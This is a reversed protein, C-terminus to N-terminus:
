SRCRRRRSVTCATPSHTLVASSSSAPLHLLLRVLADRARAQRLPPPRPRPRGQSRLASDADRGCSSRRSSALNCSASSCAHTSSSSATSSSAASTSRRTSSSRASSRARPSSVLRDPRTVALDPRLPCPARIRHPVAPPPPRALNAPSPNLSPSSLSPVCSRRGPQSPPRLDALAACHVPVPRSAGVQPGLDKFDLSDGDRVGYDALSRDDDDLVKKDSTTLRQRHVNVQTPPLTLRARGRCPELLPLAPRVKAQAAIASKLSGVTPQQGTLELSLPFRTSPKSSRPKVTVRM